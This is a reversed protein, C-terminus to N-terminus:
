IECFTLLVTKYQEAAVLNKDNIIQIPYSKTLLIYSEIYM